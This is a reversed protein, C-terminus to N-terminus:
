TLLIVELKQTWERIGEYCFEWDALDIEWNKEINAEIEEVFNEDKAIRQSFSPYDMGYKTQYGTERQRLDAVKATIQEITYRQLALDIAVQLDGFATLAEVYKDKVIVTVM